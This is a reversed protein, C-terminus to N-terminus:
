KVLDIIFKKNIIYSKRTQNHYSHQQNSYDTGYETQGDYYHYSPGSQSQKMNFDVPIIEARINIDHGPQPTESEAEYDNLNREMQSM